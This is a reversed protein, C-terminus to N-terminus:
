FHMRVSAMCIKCSIERTRRAGPSINENLSGGPESFVMGAVMNESDAIHRLGTPWGTPKTPKTPKTSRRSAPRPRGLDTECQGLGTQGTPFM